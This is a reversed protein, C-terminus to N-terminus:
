ACRGLTVAVTRPQLVHTMSKGGAGQDVPIAGSDVDFSFEGLQGRM